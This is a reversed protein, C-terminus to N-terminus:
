IMYGHVVVMGLMHSEPVNLYHESTNALLGGNAVNESRRLSCRVKMQM